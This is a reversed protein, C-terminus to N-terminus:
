DLKGPARIPARGGSPATIQQNDLSVSFRDRAKLSFGFRKSRFDASVDGKTRLAYIVISMGCCCACRFACRLCHLLNADCGRSSVSGAREASPKDTTPSAPNLATALEQLEKLKQDVAKTTKAVEVLLQEFVDPLKDIARLRLARPADNFLWEQLTSYEEMLEHGALTKIALGWKGNVKDYGVQDSEYGLRDQSTWERFKVWATVGVNLKQLEGDFRAVVKGIQDSLTNLDSAAVSLQQLSTQVRSVL